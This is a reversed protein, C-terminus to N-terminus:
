PFECIFESDDPVFVDKIPNLVPVEPLECVGFMVFVLLTKPTAAWEIPAVADVSLCHM